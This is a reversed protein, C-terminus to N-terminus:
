EMIANLTGNLTYLDCSETSSTINYDFYNVSQNTNGSYVLESNTHFYCPSLYIEVLFGPGQNFYGNSIDAYQYQISFTVGVPLSANRTSVLKWIPSLLTIFVHASYASSQSVCTYYHPNSIGQLLFTVNQDNIAITQSSNEQIGNSIWSLNGHGVTGLCTLSLQKTYSSNFYNIIPDSFLEM